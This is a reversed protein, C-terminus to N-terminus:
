TVKGKEVLYSGKLALLSVWEEGFNDIFGTQVRARKLLNDSWLKLTPLKDLLDVSCLRFLCDFRKFLPAYTPDIM